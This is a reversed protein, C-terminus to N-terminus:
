DEKKYVNVELIEGYNPYHKAQVSSVLLEEGEPGGEYEWLSDTGYVRVFVHSQASFFWLDYLSFRNVIRNAM